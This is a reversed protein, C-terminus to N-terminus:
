GKGEDRLYSGVREVWGNARIIVKGLLNTCKPANIMIPM